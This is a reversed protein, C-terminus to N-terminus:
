SAANESDAIENTHNLANKIKDLMLEQVKNIHYFEVAMRFAESVYATKKFLVKMIFKRYVSGYSSFAQRKLSKFLGIFDHLIIKRKIDPKKDPFHEITRFCRDFYNEPKNVEELMRIYGKYITGIGLKSRFNLAVSSGLMGDSEELLRNEKKMREYLPTNPLATLMSLTAHPIGSERIFDLERQFIDEPDNDFGVVFGGAVEIGKSNIKWISELINKNQNQVKNCEKLSDESTSEIGIFVISFGAAVLLDMLEEDDALNISLQTYFIFPHEREIQWKIIEKLLVKAKSVIGIFNDDTIFLGGRFGTNYIQNMESIVQEPSKTRIKHGYIAAIDCFECNFPCGRAVQLAMVSYAEINIIDLRPMPSKEIDPRENSIYIKKLTGKELDDIFMPITIEGEGLVFCDVGKIKDYCATPYPGGAAIFKNQNKCMRIVNELSNKQSIMASIMIIDNKSIEDETLEDVNMDILKVEYDDSFYSAITALGLPPTFGRKNIFEVTYQNTWFSQEYKPYVMLIKKKM